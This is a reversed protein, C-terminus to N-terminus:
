VLFLSHAFTDLIYGIKILVSVEHCFIPVVLFLLLPWTRYPLSIASRYFFELCFILMVLATLAMNWVLTINRLSSIEGNLFQLKLVEIRLQSLIGNIEGAETTARNQLITSAHSTAKSAIM